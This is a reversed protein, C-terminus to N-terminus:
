AKTLKELINKLSKYISEAKLKDEDHEAKMKLLEVYGLASALPNKIDHRVASEFLKLRNENIQIDANEGEGNIVLSYVTDEEENTTIKINKADELDRLLKGIRNISRQIGPIYKNESSFYKVYRESAELDKNIKNSLSEALERGKSIPINIKKIKEDNM